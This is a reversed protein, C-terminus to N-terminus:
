VTGPMRCACGAVIPPPKLMIAHLEPVFSRRGHEEVILFRWQFQHIERGTNPKAQRERKAFVHPAGM